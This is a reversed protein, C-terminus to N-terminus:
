SPDEPRCIPCPVLASGRRASGAAKGRVMLCSARHYHTMGAATVLDGATAPSAPSRRLLLARLDQVAEERLDRVSRMGALLWGALGAVAVTTAVIGGAVAYEQHELDTTGSAVLWAVVLGTSSLVIARVLRRLDPMSWPLARPPATELVQADATGDAVAPEGASTVRLRPRAMLGVSM